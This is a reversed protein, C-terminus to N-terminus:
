GHYCGVFKIINNRGTFGRAVRLASMTAETGSSVLRVMQMSPFAEVIREALRVEEPTPAGYTTGKAATSQIAAVVAPHAHGLILPGWSGVFDVYENGDVDTFRGGRGEKIF